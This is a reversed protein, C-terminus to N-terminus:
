SGEGGVQSATRKLAGVVRGSATRALPKGSATREPHEGEESSGKAGDHAKGAEAALEEEAASCPLPPHSPPHLRSRARPCRSRTPHTRAGGNCACKPHLHLM